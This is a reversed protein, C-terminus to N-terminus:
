EDVRVSATEVSTIGGCSLMIFLKGRFGISAARGSLRSLYRGTLPKVYANTVTTSTREYIRIQLLVEYSLSLSPKSM